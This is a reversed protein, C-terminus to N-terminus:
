TPSVEAHDGMKFTSKALHSQEYLQPRVSGSITLGLGSLEEASDVKWKARREVDATEGRHYYTRPPSCRHHRHIHCSWLGLLMSLFAGM